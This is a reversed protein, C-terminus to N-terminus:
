RGRLFLLPRSAYIRGFVHSENATTPAALLVRVTTSRRSQLWATSSLRLAVIAALVVHDPSLVIQPLGFM